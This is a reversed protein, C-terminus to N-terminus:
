HNLPICPNKIKHYRVATLLGSKIMDVHCCIFLGVKLSTFVGILDVVLWIELMGDEGGFCWGLWCFFSTYFGVVSWWGAGGDGGGLALNGPDRCPGGAGGGVRGRGPGPRALTKPELSSSFAIKVIAQTRPLLLTRRCHRFDKNALTAAAKLNNSQRPTSSPSSFRRLLLTSM